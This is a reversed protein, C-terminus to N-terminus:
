SKVSQTEPEIESSSTSPDQTSAIIFSDASIRGSKIRTASDLSLRMTRPCLPRASILISTGPLHACALAAQRPSFASILAIGMICRISWYLLKASSENKPRPVMSTVLTSHSVGDSLVIGPAAVMVQSRRIEQPSLM